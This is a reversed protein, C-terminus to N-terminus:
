KLATEGDIHVLYATRFRTSRTKPILFNLSQSTVKKDQTYKKVITVNYGMQIMDNYGKSNTFFWDNSKSFSTELEKKNRIFDGYHSAYLFLSWARMKEGYLNLKEGEESKKNFLEAAKISSHFEFMNPLLSINLSFILASSAAILMIIQRKLSQKLVLMFVVGGLFGAIVLWFWTRTEHFFYMTIIAIVIFILLSVVKNGIFIVKTFKPYKTGYFFRISWKSTIIFIFPIASLLYHPNKQKAISLIGVFVVVAAVTIFERHKIKEKNLKFLSKIECFMAALMFISWPLLLYLSTHLYFLFDNSHGHYSGTVRGVNNTWFYFKIGDLGFQKFLGVMVPSIIIVVIIAALLWKVNLIEDWKKHIFLDVGIAALPIIIGVPGKTLLSLGIGIVGLFFQYVKKNRFYEAFQWVSFVCFTVLITDTHIDNNYHFFGLSTMWFIAALLGEHKGYLLKGLRYTFFVGLMSVLMVFVKYIPVSVGFIKFCVAAIWFLMPPKQEYPTGGITLTLWSNNDIIERGIQAYKAANVMLPVNLLSFFCILIFPLITLIDLHKQRM